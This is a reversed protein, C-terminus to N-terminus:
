ILTLTFSSANALGVVMSGSLSGTSKVGAGDTIEYRGASVAYTTVGSSDTTAVARMALRISQTTGDTASLTLAGDVRVPDDASAGPTITFSGEVPGTATTAGGLSAAGSITLQTGAVTAVLGSASFARETAASVPPVAAGAGPTTAADGSKTPTASAPTSTSPAANTAAAAAAPPASFTQQESAQSVPHNGETAASADPTAGDVPPTVVPDAPPISGPDVVVTTDQPAALPASVHEPAPAAVVPVPAPSFTHDAVTSAVPVAVTTAAAAVVGAVIGAKTSMPGGLEVAIRTITPAQQALASVSSSATVPDPGGSSLAAQAAREGKRLAPIFLAAVAYPGSILRRLAARGRHVRARANEETVGTVDAVERFSLQEVYRLELAERYAEPLSALATAVERQAFARDLDVVEDAPPVVPDVFAAMRDLTRVERRRRDGEDFCVNTLIRHLWARLHFEGDFRPMARYARLFTEQVADEAARAEGLRMMAHAYLSPSYENVISVFAAADGGNHAEVLLREDLTTMAM